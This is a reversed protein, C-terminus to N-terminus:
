ARPLCACPPLSSNKQKKANKPSPPTIRGSRPRSPASPTPDPDSGSRPAAVRTPASTSRPRSAAVRTSASTFRPPSPAVPASPPAAPLPVPPSSTRSPKTLLGPAASWHHISSTSPAPPVSASPSPSSRADPRPAERHSPNNLPASTAARRRDRGSFRRSAADLAPCTNKPRALRFSADADADFRAASRPALDVRRLPTAVIQDAAHLWAGPMVGTSSKQAGRLGRGAWSSSPGHNSCLEIGCVNPETWQTIIENVRGRLGPQVRKSPRAASRGALIGQPTAEDDGAVQATSAGFESQHARAGGVLCMAVYCKVVCTSVSRSRVRFLPRSRTGQLAPDSRMMSSEPIHSIILFKSFRAYSNSIAHPM